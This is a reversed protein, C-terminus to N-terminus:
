AGVTALQVIRLLVLGAAVVLYGRLVIMWIRSLPSLRAPPLRDLPPMRWTDRDFLPPQHRKFRFSAHRRSSMEYLKVLATVAVLAVSASLALMKM